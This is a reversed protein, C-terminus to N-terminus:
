QLQAHPKVTCDDDGDGQQIPRSLVHSTESEVAIFKKDGSGALRQAHTRAHKERQPLTKRHVNQNVKSVVEGLMRLSCLCGTPVIGTQDSEICSLWIQMRQKACAIEVEERPAMFTEGGAASFERLTKRAGGENRM